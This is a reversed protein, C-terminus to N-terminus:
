RGVKNIAKGPAFYGARTRVKLKAGRNDTAQLKITRYKGDLTANSPSYSITYQTRIDRAIQECIPVAESSRKPLFAEGGSAQAIRQLVRPNADADDEDFMGITYITVDSHGVSRLIQNLTQSSANDGGDSIVVLAKRESAAKELHTLAVTIADYLATKGADVPQEIAARLEIPSASFLKTSPLGSSTRENFNVIFLEDDPNSSRAFAVAAAAVDSRKRAMSKSNDIVLGIAVPIDDTRFGRITQPQGDEELRFNQERLGSVATGDKNRVLARLVVLRVDVSITASAELTTAPALNQSYAFGASLVPLLFRLARFKAM